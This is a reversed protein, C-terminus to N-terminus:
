RKRATQTESQEGGGGPEGGTIEVAGEGLGGDVEADIAGIALGEGAGEEGALAVVRCSVTLGGAEGEVVVGLGEELALGPEFLGVADHAGADAEPTPRVAPEAGELFLLEADIDGRAALEGAEPVLDGLVGSTGGGGVCARASASSKRRVRMRRSGGRELEDVGGFDGARVADVASVGPLLAIEIEVVGGVADFHGEEAVLDGAVALVEFDGLLPGAIVLAQAGLVFGGGGDIEDEHDAMITPRTTTMMMRTRPWSM